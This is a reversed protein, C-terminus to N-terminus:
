EGGEANWYNLYYASISKNQRSENKNITRMETTETKQENEKEAEPHVYVSTFNILRSTHLFILMHCVCVCVCAKFHM